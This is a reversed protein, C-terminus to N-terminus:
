IAAATFLDLIDQAFVSLAVVIAVSLAAIMLLYELSAAGSESYLFKNINSLAFPSM